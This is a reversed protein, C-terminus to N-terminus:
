LVSIYDASLGTKQEYEQKMIMVLHEVRQKKKAKSAMFRAIADERLEKATM